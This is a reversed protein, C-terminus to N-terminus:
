IKNTRQGRKDLINAFKFSLAKLNLPKVVYGTAGLKMAEEAVDDDIYASVMIIDINPNITKAEQIVSMGSKKPMKIDLLMIDCPNNKIFRIAEDGDKAEQFECDYRADLFNIIMSRAGAEDDAVLIHPKNIKSERENLQFKKRVVEELYGLRFPKTIYGDAGLEMAKNAKEKDEFVTLMIVKINKDIRKIRELTDLGNIGKMRIDLFVITPKDKKVIELAEEGSNATYVTFRKHQFFNKISDTMGKEDDVVLIIM